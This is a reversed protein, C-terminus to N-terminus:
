NMNSSSNRPSIIRIVSQSQAALFDTAISRVDVFSALLKQKVLLRRREVDRLGAAIPIPVNVMGQPRLQRLAEIKVKEDIFSRFSLIFFESFM